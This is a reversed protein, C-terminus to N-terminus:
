RERRGPEQRRRTARIRIVEDLTLRPRGSPLYFPRLAGAEVYRYITRLSVGLLRAAEGLTVAYALDEPRPPREARSM